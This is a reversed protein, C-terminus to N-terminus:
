PDPNDPDDWFVLGAKTAHQLLHARGSQGEARNNDIVCAGLLAAVDAEIYPEAGGDMKSNVLAVTASLQKAVANLDNQLNCNAATHSHVSENDLEALKITGELLYPKGTLGISLDNAFARIEFWRANPAIIVTPFNTSM